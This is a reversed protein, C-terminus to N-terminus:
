RWRFQWKKTAEGKTARGNTRRLCAKEILGISERKRKDSRERPRNCLTEDRFGSQIRRRAIRCGVHPTIRPSGAVANQNASSM